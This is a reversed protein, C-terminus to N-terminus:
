ENEFEKRLKEYQSRRGEKEARLKKIREATEEEREWTYYEVYIRPTNWGDEVVLHSCDGYSEILDKLEDLLEGLPLGDWDQNTSKRRKMTKIYDESSM